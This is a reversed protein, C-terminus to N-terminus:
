LGNACSVVLILLVGAGIALWMTYITKLVVPPLRVGCAALAIVLLVWYILIGIGSAELAFRM